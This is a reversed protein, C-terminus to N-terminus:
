WRIVMGDAAVGARGPVIRRVAALLAKPDAYPDTHILLLRGARADRATAAAQSASSHGSGKGTAEHILLDSERALATLAPCPETDASYVFSGRSPLVEVRVALAPVVHRVPAATVRFERNALVTEGRRRKVAHYRIPYRGPMKRWGFMRLATRIRRITGAGAHIRIPARRGRLSLEMLFVPLGAAHDPHFHTIFIDGIRDRGIGFAELRGRPSVGCDILLGNRAGIVAMHTTRRKETSVLCSSGLVILKVM